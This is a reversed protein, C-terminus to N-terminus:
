DEFSCTHVGDEDYSIKVTDGNGIKTATKDCTNLDETCIKSGDIRLKIKCRQKGSGTCGYSTTKGGSVNKGKELGTCVTDGGSYIKVRITEDTDNQVTFRSNAEAELGLFLSAAAALSIVTLYRFVM